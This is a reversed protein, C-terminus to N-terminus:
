VACIRMHPPANMIHILQFILQDLNGKTRANFSGNLSKTNTSIIQKKLIIKTCFNDCNMEKDVYTVNMTSLIHKCM